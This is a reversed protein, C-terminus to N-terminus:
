SLILINLSNSNQNLTHFDRLSRETILLTHQEELSGTNTEVSVDLQQLNGAAETGLCRVGRRVENSTKM